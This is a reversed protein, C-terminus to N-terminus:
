PPSPSRPSSRKAESAREAGTGARAWVSERSPGDKAARSSECCVLWPGGESEGGRRARRPQQTDNEGMGGRGRGAPFPSRSACAGPGSLIQSAQFGRSPAREEIGDAGKPAAQRTVLPGRPPLSFRGVTLLDSRRATSPRGPARGWERLPPIREPPVRAAAGHERGCPASRETAEFRYARPGACPRRVTPGGM